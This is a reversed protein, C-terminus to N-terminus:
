AEKQQPKKVIAPPAIDEHEIWQFIQGVVVPAYVKGITEKIDVLEEASVEVGKPSEYIKQALLYRALKREAPIEVPALLASVAAAAMTLEAGNHDLPKGDFSRLVYDFRKKM